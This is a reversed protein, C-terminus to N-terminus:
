IEQFDEDIGLVTIKDQWIKDASRSTNNVSHLDKLFCLCGTVDVAM